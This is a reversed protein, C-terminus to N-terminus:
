VPDVRRGASLSLMMLSERQQRSAADVRASRWVGTVGAFSRRLAPAAPRAAAARVAAGRAQRASPWVSLNLSGGMFKLSVVRQTKLDLAMPWAFPALSVKASKLCHLM